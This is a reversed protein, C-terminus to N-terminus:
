ENQPVEKGAMLLGLEEMTFEEAPRVARIEGEYMVAIRDSLKTIEQLDASILIIGKGQERLQLLLSHIYEIAGVDLGRTPQAAVILDPDTSVERALIVKQQNGGSLLKIKQGLGSTKIQFSDVMQRGAKRVKQRQIVGNKVWEPRFQRGLLINEELTFNGLMARKHRDSPIHALGLKKRQRVNLATIDRGRFVISGSKCPRLGTILEELEMQGNGEVGAIGLIEGGYVQLSVTHGKQEILRVDQLKLIEEGRNIQAKALNFDVERGVMLRALEQPSTGSKDLTQLNKGNRLVTIRDAAEMTENLKHTIFIITKGDKKLERFVQFLEEVEPPTLVATPEDFIIIEAGRYLAKVIEVRQKVGVPLTEVVADLDLQFNFKDVLEQVRERSERYDVLVNGPEYGLIINELVTLREVLMFHQHVMGLGRELAKGPSNKLVEEGKVVIKGDDPEYLGFLINMLTSKGAGNEGLLVHVEQRRVLLDVGDNALVPGFRKTINRMEIVWPGM